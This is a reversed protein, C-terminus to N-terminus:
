YFRENLGRALHLPLNYQQWVAEELEKYAAEIAYFAKDSLMDARASLGEELQAQTTMGLIPMRVHPQKLVWAVSLQAMTLGANTAIPLLKTQIWQRVIAQKHLQLDPKHHRAENSSFALMGKTAIKDTLLGYEIVRYPMLYITNKLLYESFEQDVSRNILSFRNQIFDIKYHPQIHKVEDLTTNSIGIYRVRGSRRLFALARMSELLPTTGDRTHLLYIDVYDTNLRQLSDEFDELVAKYSTDKHIRKADAVSECHELRTFGCKTILCYKDRQYPKLAEGILREVKGFGYLPATDIYYGGKDIFDTVIQRAEIDRLPKYWGSFPLTGLTILKNHMNFM